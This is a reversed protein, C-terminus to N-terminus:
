QVNRDKSQVDEADVILKFLMNFCHLYKIIFFSQVNSLVSVFFKFTNQCTKDYIVLLQLLHLLHQITTNLGESLWFKILM